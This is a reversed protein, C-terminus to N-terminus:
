QSSCPSTAIERSRVMDYYTIIELFWLPTNGRPSTYKRKPVPILASFIEAKTGTGLGCVDGLRVLFAACHTKVILVLSALM